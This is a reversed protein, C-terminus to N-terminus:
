SISLHRGTQQLVQLLLQAGSELHSIDGVFQQAPNLANGLRLQFLAHLLM